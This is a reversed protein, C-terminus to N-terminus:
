CVFESHTQRRWASLCRISEAFMHACMRVDMCMWVIILCVYARMNQEIAGKCLDMFSYQFRAPHSTRVKLALLSRMPHHNDTRIAWQALENIEDELAQSVLRTEELEAEWRAVDSRDAVLWLVVITAIVVLTLSTNLVSTNGQM